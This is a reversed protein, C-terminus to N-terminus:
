QNVAKSSENSVARATTATERTPNIWGSQELSKEIAQENRQRGELARAQVTQDKPTTQMMSVVVAFIWMWKQTRM